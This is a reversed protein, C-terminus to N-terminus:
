GEKYSLALRNLVTEAQEFDFESVAKFLEEFDRNSATVNSSRLEHIMDTVRTDSAQILRRMEVIMAAIDEDTLQRKVQGQDIANLAANINRIVIELERTLNSFLDNIEHESAQKKYAGELLASLAQLSSAGVNGAVGKLTHALIERSKADSAQQLREMFSANTDVFRRLLRIYLIPNNQTRALGAKVDVKDIDPVIVEELDAKDMTGFIPKAPRIWKDLSEFLESVVIPKKVVDNMGSEIAYQQDAGSINATMAIIPLDVLKLDERILRTADYGDMVPMQGDMLVGDYYADQRLMEVAIQGNEACDTLIGNASLVEVVLEQNILNDEVVLIRAGAMNKALNSEQVRKHMEQEYHAITENVVAEFETFFDGKRLHVRAGDGESHQVLRMVRTMHYLPGAIRHSLFLGFAMLLLFIIASVILYVQTLLSRQDAIFEYYPHGPDLGLDNGESILVEYYYLNSAYLVTLGAILALGLYMM